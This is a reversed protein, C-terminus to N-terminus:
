RPLADNLKGQLERWVLFPKDVEGSASVAFQTGDGTLQAALILNRGVIWYEGKVTFRSSGPAPNLLGSSKWGRSLVEATASSIWDYEPPGSRYAFPAIYVGWTRAPAAIEQELRPLKSNADPRAQETRAQDITSKSRKPPDGHTSGFQYSLSILNQDGLDGTPVYAYDLLVDNWKFGAGLTFGSGADNASNAGARFVVHEPWVWFEGGIKGEIEQNKVYVVDTNLGWRGNVARYGAGVRVTIPLEDGATVFKLNSGFNLVSLGVTLGEVPPRWMAGLDVAVASASYNDLTEHIVKVTGGLDIVESLTRAYTLSFSLDYASASGLIASPGGGAIIERRELAGLDVYIGNVALTSAEGLPHVYGLYNYDMDLFLTNHAFGVEQKRVTAIGAPNFHMGYVDDAWATNAEGMAASKAGVGIELFAAGTTGAGSASAPIIGALICAIM